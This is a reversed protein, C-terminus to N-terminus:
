AASGADDRAERQSEIFAAALVAAETAADHAALVRSRGTRGMADLQETPADLADRMAVVLDDVSGAPM